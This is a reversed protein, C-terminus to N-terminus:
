AKEAACKLHVPHLCPLPNILYPLDIAQECIGCRNGQMRAQKRLVVLVHRDSSMDEKVVWRVEDVLSKEHNLLRLLSSLERM